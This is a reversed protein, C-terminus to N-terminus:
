LSEEILPIGLDSAVRKLGHDISVIPASQMRACSLVYADYAYINAHHAIAVADDLPVAVLRIPISHYSELAELAESLTLRRQKFMASLANGIEWPLSEPAVLSAGDTRAILSPKSPENLVVALVASTDIVMISM